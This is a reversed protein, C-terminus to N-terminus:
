LKTNAFGKLCPASSTLYYRFNNMEDAFIFSSGYLYFSRDRNLPAPTFSTVTRITLHGSAWWVLLFKSLVIRGKRPHVSYYGSFLIFTGEKTPIWLLFFYHWTWGRMFVKSWDFERPFHTFHRHTIWLILVVCYNHMEVFEWTSIHLGCGGQVKSNDMSCICAFFGSFTLSHRFTLNFPLQSCLPQQGFGNVKVFIFVTSTWAFNVNSHCGIIPTLVRSHAGLM